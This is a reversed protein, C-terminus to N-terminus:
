ILDIVETMDLSVSNTLHKEDYNREVLQALQLTLSFGFQEDGLQGLLQNRDHKM